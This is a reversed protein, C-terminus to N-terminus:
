WGNDYYDVDEDEKIDDYDLNNEEKPKDDAAGNGNAHEVELKEGARRLAIAEPTEGFTYDDEDDFEFLPEATTTSRISTTTSTTPETNTTTITTTITETATTTKTTTTTPATTTTATTTPPTRTPCDFEDSQDACQTFGDCVQTLSICDGNKCTFDDLEDCVPEFEPFLYFYINLFIPKLISKILPQEMSIVCISLM